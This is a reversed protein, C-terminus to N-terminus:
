LFVANQAKGHGRRRNPFRMRIQRRESFVISWLRALIEKPRSV